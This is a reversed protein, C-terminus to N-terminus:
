ANVADAIEGHFFAERLLPWVLAQESDLQEKFVKDPLLKQDAHDRLCQPSREEAIGNARLFELIDGATGSPTVYASQYVSGADNGYAIAPAWGFGYGPADISGMTETESAWIGVKEVFEVFEAETLLACWKRHRGRSQGGDECNPPSYESDGETLQWLKRRQSRPPAYPEISLPKPVDISYIVSYMLPM